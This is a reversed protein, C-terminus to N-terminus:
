LAIDPRETQRFVRDNRSGIMGWGFDGDDPFVMRPFRFVPETNAFSEQWPVKSVVCNAQAGSINDAYTVRRMFGLGQVLREGGLHVSATQMVEGNLEVTLTSQRDTAWAGCVVTAGDRPFARVVASIGGGTNWAGGGTVYESVVSESGVIPYGTCAAAVLVLGLLRSPSRM